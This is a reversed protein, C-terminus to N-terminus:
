FLVFKGLLLLILPNRFQEIYKKWVPDQEKVTFDNPGLLRIRADAERWSLGTRTPVRLRGAVEEWALCAAEGATMWMGDDELTDSCEDPNQLWVIM